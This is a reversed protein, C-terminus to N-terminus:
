SQLSSNMYLQYLNNNTLSQLIQFVIVILMYGYM